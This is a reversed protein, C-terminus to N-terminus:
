ELQATGAANSTDYASIAAPDYWAPEESQTATLNRVPAPIIKVRCGEYLPSLHHTFFPIYSDPRDALGHLWLLTYKPQQYSITLSGDIANRLLTPIRAVRM